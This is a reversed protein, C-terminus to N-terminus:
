AVRAETGDLRSWDGMEVVLRHDDAVLVRTEGEMVVTGVGTRTPGNSGKM